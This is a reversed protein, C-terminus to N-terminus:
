SYKLESHRNPVEIMSKFELTMRLVEGGMSDAQGLSQKLFKLM